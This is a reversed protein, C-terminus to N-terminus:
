DPVGHWNGQNDQWSSPNRGSWTVNGGPGYCLVLGEFSTMQDVPITVVAEVQLETPAVVYCGVRKALDSCFVNGDGFAYGPYKRTLDARMAADPIRAVLCNPFWIKEILGSWADFMPLNSADFGQGLMLYAPLGHCSLVLNKLKGGPAGRAVSAVWDIIHQRLEGSSIDWSNWMQFRRIFAGSSVRPDNVAMSPRDLRYM